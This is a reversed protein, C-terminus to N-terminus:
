KVLSSDMKAQVASDTHEQKFKQWEAVLEKEKAEDRDPKVWYHMTVRVAVLILLLSILGILGMRETRSFATFSKFFDKM